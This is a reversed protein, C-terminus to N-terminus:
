KTFSLIEEQYVRDVLFQFIEPFLWARNTILLNHKSTTAQPTFTGLVKEDQAKCLFM